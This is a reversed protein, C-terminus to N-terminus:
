RCTAQNFHASVSVCACLCPPPPLGHPTAPLRMHLFSLPLSLCLFARARKAPAHSGAARESKVGRQATRAFPVVSGHWHHWQVGGRGALLARADMWAEAM